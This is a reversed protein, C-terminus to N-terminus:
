EEFAFTAWQSESAAVEHHNNYDGHCDIRWRYTSHSKLPYEVPINWSERGDTYNGPTIIQRVVIVNHADLITICYDSM